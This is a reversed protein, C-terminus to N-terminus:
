PPQTVVAPDVAKHFMVGMAIQFKYARHRQQYAAMTPELALVAGELAGLQDAEKMNVGHVEVAGGLARRKPRVAFRQVPVNAAGSRHALTASGVASAAAGTCTRMHMELNLSRTCGKGCLTCNFTPVSRHVSRIHRDLSGRRSFESGCHHCKYQISGTSRGAGRVNTEIKVNPHKSNM